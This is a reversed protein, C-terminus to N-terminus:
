WRFRRAALDRERGTTTRPIAAMACCTRPGPGTPLDAVLWGNGMAEAQLHRGRGLPGPRLAGSLPPLPRGVRAYLLRLADYIETVTAVTSRPNAGTAPRDGSARTKQRTSRPRAWEDWSDDPTRPCARSTAVSVKMFLTSPWSTKGSGSPGTIVTMRGQPLDMSTRSTTPGCEVCPSPRTGTRHREGNGVGGRRQSRRWGTRTARIWDRGEALVEALFRGSPTDLTAIHEPPGEGVIRGGGAGGEPGMDVIHDAVKIIDPNHEIVLVTNGADVLRDLAERLRRVDAMHLGTTPEDLVYLTRGTAPRALETALKIRQAEGGSLTTSPQGLSVYGMGVEVLTTLIRKIKRHNRFFVAADAISMELIDRITRGRYRVELTEPNFRAGGCSECPVQVDALFQMEVTKVGAGACEECRGGQVNFSFRSKTYGRTRSEPLQAFLERIPTWAKTYTAPNSRPTRGIPAQDIEIVQRDPRAGPHGQVARHARM